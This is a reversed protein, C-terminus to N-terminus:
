VTISSKVPRMPTSQSTPNKTGNLFESLSRAPFLSSCQFAASHRRVPRVGPSTSFSLPCFSCPQSIRAAARGADRLLRASGRRESRPQRFGTSRSLELTGQSITGRPPPGPPIRHLAAVHKAHSPDGIPFRLDRLRRPRNAEDRSEISDTLRSPRHSTTWGSWM